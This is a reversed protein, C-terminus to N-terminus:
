IPPLSAASSAAIEEDSKGLICGGMILQDYSVVGHHLEDTAEVFFEPVV